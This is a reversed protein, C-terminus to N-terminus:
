GASRAVKEGLPLLILPRDDGGPKDRHDMPQPLARHIAPVLGATVISPHANPKGRVSIAAKAPIVGHHQSYDM